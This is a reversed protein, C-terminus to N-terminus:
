FWWGTSQHPIEGVHPPKLRPQLLDASLHDAVIGLEQNGRRVKPTCHHHAQHFIPIGRLPFTSTCHRLAPMGKKKQKSMPYPDFHSWGAFIILRQCKHLFFPPWGLNLITWVRLPNQYNRANLDLKLSGFKSGYGFSALFPAVIDLTQMNSRKPPSFLPPRHFAAIPQSVLTSNCCSDSAYSGLLRWNVGIYTM